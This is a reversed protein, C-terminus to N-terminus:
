PLGSGSLFVDGVGNTDATVLNSASSEFDVFVGDPSIVASRSGSNGISGDVQSLFNTKPTCGTAGICTDTAFVHSFFSSPFGSVLNDALSEYAVFRGDASISPRMSSDNTEGGDSSRTVRLNNPTCSGSVGICTDHVYIDSFANTDGGPPLLNSAASDFVIFRAGPTIRPHLSLANGSGSPGASV